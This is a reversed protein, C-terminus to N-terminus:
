GGTRSSPSTWARPPAAASPTGRSRLSSAAMRRRRGIKSHQVPRPDTACIASFPRAYWTFTRTPSLADVWVTKAEEKLRRVVELAENLGAEDRFVAVHKDMIAGLEAKIESVRRGEKPRDVIEQIRSEEDTVSSWSVDPQSIGRAIEAAHAEDIWIHQLARRRCDVCRCCTTGKAASAFDASRM